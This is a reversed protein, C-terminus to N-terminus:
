KMVKIVQSGQDTTVKVLYIGAAWASASVQVSGTTRPALKSLMVGSTNFVAIERITVGKPNVITLVDKVPNPYVSLNSVAGGISVVNINSYAFNGDLDVQKIRYFNNGKVPSEDTWEYHLTTSSNIAGAVQGITTYTVGDTSREVLFVKNNTETETTWILQVAQDNSNTATFDVLSVPLTSNPTSVTMEAINYGNTGLSTIGSFRVYRASGNIAVSNLNSSNGNVTAVTTYGSTASTTSLDITYDTAIDASSGFLIGVSCLNQVSGLDVRLNQPNNRNAGNNPSRWVTATKGDFANSAPFGPSSGSASATGNLAANVGSCGPSTFAKLELMSYFGFGGVSGTLTVRIYRGTGAVVWSNTASSNGTVSKVTTWTSQDNSIDITYNTAYTFASWLIRITCLQQPTGLDVIIYPNGNSLLSWATTTSDGDTANTPSSLFVFPSTVPANLAVDTSGCQAFSNEGALLFLLAPLAFYFSRM